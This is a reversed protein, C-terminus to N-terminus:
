HHVKGTCSKSCYPGAKGERKLRAVQSNRRKFITGCNRCRHMGFASPLSAMYVRANDARSLVRLNELRNDRFDGNIHDITEDPKLKYGTAQEFLYKPYSMTTKCSGDKIIVHMRGDKRVYPGYVKMTRKRTQPLHSPVQVRIGYAISKLDIAYEM